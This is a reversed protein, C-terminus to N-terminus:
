KFTRFKTGAEVGCCRNRANDGIGSCYPSRFFGPASLTAVKQWVSGGFNVLEVDPEKM